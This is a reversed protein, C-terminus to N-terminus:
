IFLMVYCGISTHPFVPVCVRALTHFHRPQVPRPEGAAARHVRAPVTHPARGGRRGALGASPACLYASLTPVRHWFLEDDDPSLGNLMRSCCTRLHPVRTGRDQTQHSQAAQCPDGVQRRGQGRRIQDGQSRRWASAPVANLTQPSLLVGFSSQGCLDCVRSPVFECSHRARPEDNWVCFGRLSRNTCRRAPCVPPQPSASEEVDLVLRVSRLTAACHQLWAALGVAASDQFFACVCVCVRM